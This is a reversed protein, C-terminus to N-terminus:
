GIVIRIPGLWVFTKGFLVASSFRRTLSTNKFFKM